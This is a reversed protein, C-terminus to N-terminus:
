MGRLSIGPAWQVLGEPSAPRAPLLGRRPEPNQPELFNLNTNDDIEIHKHAEKNNSSHDGIFPNTNATNVEKMATIETTTDLYPPSITANDEESSKIDTQIGAAQGADNRRPGPVM